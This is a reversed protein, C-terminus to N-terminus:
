LLVRSPPPAPSPRVPSSSVGRGDWGPRASAQSRCPAGSARPVGLTGEALHGLIIALHRAGGKVGDRNGKNAALEGLEEEGRGRHEVGRVEAALCVGGRGYGDSGGQKAGGDRCCHSAKIEPVTHASQPHGGRGEPAALPHPLTNLM